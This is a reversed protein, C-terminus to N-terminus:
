GMLGTPEAGGFLAPGALTVPTQMESAPDNQLIRLQTGKIRTYLSQALNLKDKLDSQASAFDDQSLSAAGQRQLQVLQDELNNAYTLVSASTVDSSGLEAQIKLAEENTITIKNDKNEADGANGSAKSTGESTSSSSSSSRTASPRPEETRAYYTYTSPIASTIPKPTEVKRETVTMPEGNPGIVTRTVTKSTASKAGTTTTDSGSGLFKQTLDNATNIAPTNTTNNAPTVKGSAASPSGPAPVTNVPPKSTASSGDAPRIESRVEPAKGEVSVSDAPKATPVAPQQTGFGDSNPRNITLLEKAQQAGATTPAPQPNTTPGSTPQSGSPAPTGTPTNTQGSPTNAAAPAASTQKNQASNNEILQRLEKATLKNTSPLPAPSPM